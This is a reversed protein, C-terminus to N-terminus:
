LFVFDVCINNTVIANPRNAILVMIDLNSRKIGSISDEINSNNNDIKAKMANANNKKAMTVLCFILLIEWNSGFYDM